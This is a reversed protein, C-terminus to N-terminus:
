DFNFALDLFKIKAKKRKKLIKKDDSCLGLLYCFGAMGKNGLIGGGFFLQRKAAPSFNGYSIL